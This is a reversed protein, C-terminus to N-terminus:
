GKLRWQPGFRKKYDNHVSLSYLLGDGEDQMAEQRTRPWRQYYYGAYVHIPYCPEFIEVNCNPLARRLLVDNDLVGNKGPVEDTDTGTPLGRIQLGRLSLQRLQSFHDGRELLLRLVSRCFLEDGRDPDTSETPQFANRASRKLEPVPDSDGAASGENKPIRHELILEKLTGSVGQLIIMWERNMIQEYRHPIDYGDSNPATRIITEGTFPKILHLHTLARFQQPLSRPLWIPSHFAWTQPERDGDSDDEDEDKWDDEHAEGSTKGESSPSLAAVAADIQQYCEAEKEAVLAWDDDNNLLTDAYVADDTPTALLGLDLYKIHECNSCFIRVLAASFYGRLRLNQLNPLWVDPATVAHGKELPLGVLELSKLNRFSGIVEVVESDVGISMCLSHVHQALFNWREVSTIERVRVFSEERGFQLNRRNCNDTARLDNRDRSRWHRRKLKLDKAWQDPNFEDQAYKRLSPQYVLQKHPYRLEERRTWEFREEREEPGEHEIDETEGEIDIGEHTGRHHLEVEDWIVPTLLRELVRCTRGLAVQDPLLLLSTIKQFLEIPLSALLLNM